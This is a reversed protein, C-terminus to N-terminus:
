KEFPLNLFLALKKGLQEFPAYSFIYGHLTIREGHDTVFTIGPILYILLANAHAPSNASKNFEISKIKGLQIQTENLVKYSLVNLEKDIHIKIPFFQFWVYGPVTFLFLIVSVTVLTGIFSDSYLLGAGLIITLYIGISIFDLGKAPNITLLLENETEKIINM